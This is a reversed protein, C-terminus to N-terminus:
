RVKLHIIQAGGPPTQIFASDPLELNARWSKSKFEMNLAYGDLPRDMHIKLPLFVDNIREMGSYQIDSVIQGDEQFIQQRAIALESREIWIRRVTQIRVGGTDRYVALVYYKASADRAEELSLRIGPADADISQPIISEFIHAARIPIGEPLDESRLEKASDNGVYFKNKSPIWASLEDRVSRLDLITTKTIPNLLVLCISDPRKMLIYGSAPRYPQLEGSESKGYVLTLRLGNSSLSKIKDYSRVIELLEDFSAARAHLIKPSVEVKVTHKVSCGPAAGGVLALAFGLLIPTRRLSAALAPLELIERM